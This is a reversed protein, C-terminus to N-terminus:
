RSQIPSRFAVKEVDDGNKDSNYSIELMHPGSTRERGAQSEGRAELMARPCRNRAGRNWLGVWREIESLWTVVELRMWDVM